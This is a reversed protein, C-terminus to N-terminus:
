RLPASRGRRRRRFVLGSAGVASVLVATPAVFGLGGGEPAVRVTLQDQDLTAPGAVVKVSLEHVGPSLDIQQRLQARQGPAVGGTPSYAAPVYHHGDFSASEVTAALRRNGTNVVAVTLQVGKPTPRYRLDEIRAATLPAAGARFTVATTADATPDSLDVRVAVRGDLERPADWAGQLAVAAGPVIRTSGLPVTAVQHGAVAVFAVGTPDILVNGTDRVLAAFFLHGGRRSGATSISAIKASRVRAGPGTLEVLAALREHVAIQRRGQDVPVM